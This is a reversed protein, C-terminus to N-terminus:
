VAHKVSGALREIYRFVESSACVITFEDSVSMAASTLSSRNLRM